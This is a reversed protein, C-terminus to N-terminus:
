TEGGEARKRWAEFDFEGEDALDEQDDLDPNAWDPGARKAVDVGPERIGQRGSGLLAFSHAQRQAASCDRFIRFAQALSPAERRRSIGNARVEELERRLFESLLASSRYVLIGLADVQLADVAEIMRDVLAVFAPEQLYRYLTKRDIGLERAVKARSYGLALFAAADLKRADDLVEKGM